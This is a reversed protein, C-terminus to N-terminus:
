IRGLHLDRTCPTIHRRHCVVRGRDGSQTRTQQLDDMRATLVIVDNQTAKGLDAGILDSNKCLTCQGARFHSFFEIGFHHFLIALCM